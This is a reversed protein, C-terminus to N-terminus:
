RFRQCVGGEPPAAGLADSREYQAPVNKKHKEFGRFTTKQEHRNQKNETRNQKKARKQDIPTYRGFIEGAATFPPANESSLIFNLDSHDCYIVYSIFLRCALM